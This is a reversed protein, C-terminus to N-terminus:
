SFMFVKKGVWNFIGLLTHFHSLKRKIWGGWYSIHFGVKQGVWNLPGLGVLGVKLGELPGVSFESSFFIRDVKFHSRFDFMITFIGGSFLLFIHLTMSILCGIYMWIWRWPKSWFNGLACHVTALFITDVLALLIKKFHVAEMSQKRQVQRTKTYLIGWSWITRYITQEPNWIIWLLYRYDSTM